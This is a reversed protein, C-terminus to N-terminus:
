FIAFFTYDKSKYTHLHFKKINFFFRYLLNIFERIKNQKRIDHSIANEEFFKQQQKNEAIFIAEIEKKRVIGDIQKARRTNNFFQNESEIFIQVHSKKPIKELTTFIKYLSDNKLFFLKM